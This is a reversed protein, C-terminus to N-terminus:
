VGDLFGELLCDIGCEIIGVTRLVRNGEFGSDVDGELFGDNKGDGYGDATGTLPEELGDM